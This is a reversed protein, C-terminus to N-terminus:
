FASGNWQFVGLDLYGKASFVVGEAELMAQQLKRKSEEPLSSKGQASIVRHWPMDPVSQRNLAWGVARAAHPKGAMAAVQGYTAVKGKPIQKIIKYIEQYFESAM